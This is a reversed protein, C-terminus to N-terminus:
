QTQCSPVVPLLNPSLFIPCNYKKGQGRRKEVVSEATAVHWESQLELLPLSLPIPAEEVAEARVTAKASM